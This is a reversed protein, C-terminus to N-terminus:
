HILVQVETDDFATIDVESLWDENVATHTGQQKGYSWNVLAHVM